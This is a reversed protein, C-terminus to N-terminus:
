GKKDNQFLICLKEYWICHMSNCLDKDLLLDSENAIIDYIPDINKEFLLDGPITIIDNEQCCEKIIKETYLSRQEEVYYGCLPFYNQYKQLGLWNKNPLELIFIQRNQFYELQNKIKLWYFEAFHGCLVNGFKPLKQLEQFNLNEVGKSHAFKNNNNTYDELTWRLAFRKDTSLLNAFHNGGSGPSFLVFINRM